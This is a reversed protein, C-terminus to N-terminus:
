DQRGSRPSACPEGYEIFEDEGSGEIVVYRFEREAARDANRELFLRRYSHPLHFRIYREWGFRELNDISILYTPDDM